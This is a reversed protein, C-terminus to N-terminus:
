HGEGELAAVQCWVPEDGQHGLQLEGSKLVKGVSVVKGQLKEPLQMEELKATQLDYVFFRSESVNHGGCCAIPKGNADLEQVGSEGLLRDNGLWVWNGLGLMKRGRPFQPLDAIKEGVNSIIYAKGDGAGIVIKREDPSCSISYVPHELSARWITNGAQDRISGQTGSGGSSFKPYEITEPEQPAAPLVTAAFRFERSETGAAESARSITSRQRDHDDGTRSSRDMVEGSSGSGPSSLITSEEGGRNLFLILGAILPVLGLGVLIWKRQKTPKMAKPLLFREISDIM